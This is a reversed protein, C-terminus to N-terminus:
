EFSEPGEERTADGAMTQSVQISELVLLLRYKKVPPGELPEKLPRM